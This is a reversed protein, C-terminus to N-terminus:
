PAPGTQASGNCVSEDYKNYWYYYVTNKAAISDWNQAIAPCNQTINWEAVCGPQPASPVEGTNAFTYCKGAEDFVFMAVIFGQPPATGWSVDGRNEYYGSFTCTGNQSISLSVQYQCENGDSGVTASDSVPGTGFPGWSLQTVAPGTLGGLNPWGPNGPHVISQWGPMTSNGWTTYTHGNSATVFIDLHNADRAVAAVPADPPFVGGLNEWNGSPISAWTPMSTNWWTTYVHGGPGVAFIDLHNADRAVAAVPAGPEVQGNLGLDPWCRRRRTPSARGAPM